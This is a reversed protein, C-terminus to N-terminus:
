GCLRRSWDVCSPRRRIATDSPVPAVEDATVTRRRLLHLLVLMADTDDRETDPLTAVYRAVSTDPATGTLSV